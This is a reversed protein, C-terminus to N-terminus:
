ELPNEMAQLMGPVRRQHHGKHSADPSNSRRRYDWFSARSWRNPKQFYSFDCPATDPSYPPQPLVLIGKSALFQRVSFATHSSTNNHHLIENSSSCESRKTAQWFNIHLSVDIVTKDLLCGSEAILAKLTFFACLGANWKRNWCALKRQYQHFGNRLNINQRRTMYTFCISM